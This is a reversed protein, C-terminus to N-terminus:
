RTWAHFAEPSEDGDSTASTIVGSAPVSGGAPVSHDAISDRSAAGEASSATSWLVFVSGLILCVAARTESMHRHGPRDSLILMFTNGPIDPIPAKSIRREHVYRVLPSLMMPFLRRVNPKTAQMRNTM